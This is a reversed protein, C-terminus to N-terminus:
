GHLGAGFPTQICRFRSCDAETVSQWDSDSDPLSQPLNKGVMRKKLHGNKIPYIVFCQKVFMFATVIGLTNLLLDLLIILLTVVQFRDRAAQLTLTQNGFSGTLELYGGVAFM